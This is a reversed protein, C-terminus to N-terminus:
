ARQGGNVIGHGGDGGQRSGLSHTFGDGGQLLPVQGNGRQLINMTLSLTFQPHHLKAAVSPGHASSLAVKFLGFDDVMLSESGRDRCPKGFSM